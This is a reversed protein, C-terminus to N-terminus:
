KSYVSKASSISSEQSSVSAASPWEKSSSQVEQKEVSSSVDSSSSSVSASSSIFSAASSSLFSVSSTSSPQSSRSPLSENWRANEAQISELEQILEQAKQDERELADLLQRMMAVIQTRSRETTRLIEDVVDDFDDISTRRVEIRIHKLSQQFISRSSALEPAIKAAAKKTAKGKKLKIGSQKTKKERTVREIEERLQEYETDLSDREGETITGGNAAQTALERMRDLIGAVESYASEVMQLLSIGDQANRSAQVLSPVSPRMRESVALGAADDAASNVRLGSSIREFSRQLAAQTASLQRQAEISAVNTNVVLAARARLLGIGTTGLVAVLVAM